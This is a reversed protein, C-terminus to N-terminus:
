GIPIDDLSSGQCQEWEKLRVLVERISHDITDSAQERVDLKGTWAAVILEIIHKM